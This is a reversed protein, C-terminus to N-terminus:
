YQIHKKVVLRHSMASSSIRQLVTRALIKGFRKKKKKDM